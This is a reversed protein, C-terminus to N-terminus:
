SGYELQKRLERLDILNELTVVEDNDPLQLFVQDERVRLIQSIEGIPVWPMQLDSKVSLAGINNRQPWPETDTIVVILDQSNLGNQTSKIFDYNQRFSDIFVLHVKEHSYFTLAALGTIGTLLVVGKAKTFKDVLYNAGVLAFLLGFCSTAPLTRFEIQNEAIVILPLLGISYVLILSLGFKVLSFDASRSVQWFSCLALVFGVLTATLALTGESEIIFPRLSLVVPRTVVWAIKEFLEPPSDVIETRAKLPLEVILGTIRGILFGFFSGVFVYLLYIRNRVDLKGSKVLYAVSIFSSFVAAPQYILFCFIILVLGLLKSRGFLSFSLLSLLCVWTYSFVSAWNTYIWFTPLFNILIGFGFVVFKSYGIERLLKMIQHILLLLGILGILRLFILNEYHSIRGFSQDMILQLVPRLGSTHEIRIETSNTRYGAIFAWDDAWAYSKVVSVLHVIASFILVLVHAKSM